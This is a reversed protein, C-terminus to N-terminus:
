SLATEAGKLTGGDYPALTRITLRTPRPPIFPAHHTAGQNLAMANCLVRLDHSPIRCVESKVASSLHRQLPASASSMQSALDVQLFCCDEKKDNRYSDAQLDSIIQSVDFMVDYVHLQM